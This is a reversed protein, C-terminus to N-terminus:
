CSISANALVSLSIHEIPAGPISGQVVDITNLLSDKTLNRLVKSRSTSGLMDCTLQIQLPYDLLVADVWWSVMPRHVLGLEFFKGFKGGTSHERLPLAVKDLGWGEGRGGGGVCLGRLGVKGRKNWSPLDAFLRTLVNPGSCLAGEFGM